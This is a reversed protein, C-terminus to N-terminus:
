FVAQALAQSLRYVLAPFALREVTQAVTLPSSGVVEDEYSATITGVIQGKEVPLM